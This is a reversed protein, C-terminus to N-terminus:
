VEGICATVQHVLKYPITQVILTSYRVADVCYLYSQVFRMVIFVTWLLPPRLLYELLTDLPPTITTVLTYSNNALSFPPSYINQILEEVMKQYSM